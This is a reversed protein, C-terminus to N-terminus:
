KPTAVSVRAAAREVIARQLEYNADSEKLTVLKKTEVDVELKAAALDIDEARDASEALVLVKDNAVQVFGEGVAFKLSEGGGNATLQGAKMATIFPTHGPRVGFSGDAGPAQVEDVLQSLIRRAPTVIELQIKGDAM